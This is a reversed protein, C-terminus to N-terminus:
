EGVKRAFYFTKYAKFYDGESFAASSSRLEYNQQNLYNFCNSLLFTEYNRLSDKAIHNKKKYDESTGNSYEIIFDSGFTSFNLHVVAYEYKLGYSAKENRDVSKFATVLSVVSVILLCVILIKSAKM